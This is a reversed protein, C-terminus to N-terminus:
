GSADAAPRDRIWGRSAAYAVLAAAALVHWAAHPQLASGPACLPGGTRGLVTLLIGAGVLAAAGARSRSANRRFGVLERVALVAALLGALWEGSPPLLAMVVAIAASATVIPTLGARGAVTPAVLVLLLTALSWDHMWDALGGAHGHFLVSGASVLMAATGVLRGHVHRGGVAIAVGAVLFALSSWTNVPQDPWGSHLAECDALAVAAASVAM